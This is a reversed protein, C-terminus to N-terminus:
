RDPELKSHVATVIANLLGIEAVETVLQVRKTKTATPQYNSRDQKEVEKSFVDVIYEVNNHIHNGQNDLRTVNESKKHLKNCGFVVSGRYIKLTEPADAEGPDYYVTWLHNVAGGGASIEMFQFYNNQKYASEYIRCQTFMDEVLEKSREPNKAFESM